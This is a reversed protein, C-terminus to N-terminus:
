HKLDAIKGFMPLLSTLSNKVGTINENLSLLDAQVAGAGVSNDLANRIDTKQSETLTKFTETSEVAAKTAAVQDNALNTVTAGLGELNKKSM